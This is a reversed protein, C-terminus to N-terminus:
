GASATVNPRSWDHAPTRNGMAHYCDCARGELAARDLIMARGRTYKIVGSGQLHQALLTVTTRRVGLMQALYEQTLALQESEVRDATQLLWRCLRSSADHVANCAAIQQAEALLVETYRSIMDRIGPARIVIAEFASAAIVSLRGPTQVTARTFSWRPGLGRHLGVAGERGVASAEIMDGGRTVVLLSIMGGQPFFIREIPEGPELLVMGLPPVVETLNPALLALLESPLAALLRNSKHAPSNESGLGAEGRGANRM